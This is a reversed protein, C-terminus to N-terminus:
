YHLFTHVDEMRWEEKTSINKTYSSCGGNEQILGKQLLKHVERNLEKSEVLTMRHTAMNRYSAGLVLDMQHNIKKM